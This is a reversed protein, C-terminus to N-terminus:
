EREYAGEKTADMKNRKAELRAVLKRHIATVGCRDCDDPSDIMEDWVCGNACINEDLHLLLIGLEEATFRLNLHPVAVVQDARIAVPTPHPPDHRFRFTEQQTRNEKM